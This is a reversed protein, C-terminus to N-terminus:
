KSLCIGEDNESLASGDIISTIPVYIKVNKKNFGINPRLWKGWSKFDNVM